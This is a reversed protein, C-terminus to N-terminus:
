CLESITIVLLGIVLVLLFAALKGRCKLQLYKVGLSTMLTLLGATVLFRIQFFQGSLIGTMFLIVVNAPCRGLPEVLNALPFDVMLQSVLAVLPISLIGLSMIRAINAWPRRGLLSAVSGIIIALVLLMVWAFAGPLPKSRNSALQIALSVTAIVLLTRFVEDFRDPRSKPQVVGPLTPSTAQNAHDDNTKDAPKTAHSEAKRGETFVIYLAAAVLAVYWGLQLYWSPFLWFGPSLWSPVVSAFVRESILIALSVVSAVLAFYTHYDRRAEVHFGHIAHTHDIHLMDRGQDDVWKGVEGRGTVDLFGLSVLAYGDALAHFDVPKAKGNEELGWNPYKVGSTSPRSVQLSSIPLANGEPFEADMHNHVKIRITFLEGRLYIAERLVRLLKAKSTTFASPTLQFPATSVSM